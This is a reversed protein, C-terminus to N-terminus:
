RAASESRREPQAVPRRTRTGRLFLVMMPVVYALWAVAQVWTTVPHINFIGRVITAVVSDPAIVASLDFATSGAGGIWGIEQYEAIGYTLVGGAVLVLVVGTYRFFKAVDFAVAGRFMAYGLVVASLLGLLVGILPGTASGASQVAPWVFLATELGERAVAVFAMFAAAGTGMALAADLRGQLQGKLSRAAKAMWMIMWTVLVVALFSMTGGFGEQAQFSLQSSGFTLIAGVALALGVAAGVGVWISPLASRRDTKVLYAVLISVVFTAELGERLGILFMALVTSEV